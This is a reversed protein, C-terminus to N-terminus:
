EAACALLLSAYAEVDHMRSSPGAVSIAGVVHDGEFVPAAICVLGEILEEDDVAYGRARTRELEALLSNKDVITRATYRHLGADCIRDVAPSLTPWALLAKGVATAHMPGQWGVYSFMRIPHSSDVKALYVVQDGEAVAFHVTENTEAALRSLRPKIRDVLASIDDPTAILGPLRYSLRYKTGDQM